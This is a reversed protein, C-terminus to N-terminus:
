GKVRADVAAAISTDDADLGLASVVERATDRAVQNVAQAAGARIENIRAESEATRAAIEADAKQIAVEVEAQM